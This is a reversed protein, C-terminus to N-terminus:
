FQNAVNAHNVGLQLQYIGGTQPSFGLTPSVNWTPRRELNTKGPGFFLTTECTPFRAKLLRLVHM